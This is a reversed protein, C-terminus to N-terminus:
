LKKIAAQFIVHELGMQAIKYSVCNRKLWLSDFVVNDAIFEAHKVNRPEIAQKIPKIQIAKLFTKYEGETM